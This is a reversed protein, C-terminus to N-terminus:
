SQASDANRFSRRLRELLIGHDITDFAASVDLDFVLAAFNGRDVSALIDSLVRLIVTEM